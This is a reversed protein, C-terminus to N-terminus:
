QQEAEVDVSPPSPDQRSRSFSAARAPVANRRDRGLTAVMLEQVERATQLPAPYWRPAADTTERSSRSAEGVMRPSKAAVATRAERRVKYKEQTGRDPDPNSEMERKLSGDENLCEDRYHWRAVYIRGEGSCGELGLARKAAQAAPTAKRM